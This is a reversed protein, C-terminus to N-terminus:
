PQSCLQNAQAACRLALHHLAKVLANRIRLATGVSPFGIMAIRADGSKMVDFGDGPKSSGQMHLTGPPVLHSYVRAIFRLWQYM